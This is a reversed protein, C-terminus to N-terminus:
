YGIIQFGGVILGLSYLVFIISTTWVIWKHAVQYTLFLLFFLFISKFFVGFIDGNGFTIVQIYFLMEFVIFILLIIKLYLQGKKARNIEQM